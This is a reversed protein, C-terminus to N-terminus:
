DPAVIRRITSFIKDAEIPKVAHDNMGAALYSERDGVMGNATLAVIPIDAVRGPLERIRKVATVGDMDPMQIDMLILDYSAEQVAHVAEAGNGVCTVVHGDSELTMTIVEQNVVNDEAVLISLPRGVGRLRDSSVPGSGAQTKGRATECCITFWFTSGVGETSDVGIQGGMAEVLQRCISLGLGSGGYLRTTSSDAQSFKDFIKDMAADPIGIGTDGVEFRLEIGKSTTKGNRVEVRIAGTETFKIANGILNYLIQQIRGLDGRLDPAVGPDIASELALGKQQARPDMVATVSDILKALNFDLAEFEVRGSEIKSLDLIEDLLHLLAEGSQRIREVQHKQHDSLVSRGLLAAMGLVGNMPTRLEHSMNALFESKAQNAQEAEEKALHLETVDTRIVFTGGDDTRHEHLMIWRGDKEQRYRRLRAVPDNHTELVSRVGEATDDHDGSALENGVVNTMIHEYKAGPVLLHAIDPFDKRTRENCLVFRDAADFLIVGDTMSEIAADLQQERIALTEETRKSETLDFLTTCVVNRGEWNITFSRNNVLVREGAKTLAWFNYDTPATYGQLRAQHYGWIREREEPALVYETSGMALFDDLDDYGLLNLLTRNAYIPQFREHIYIGFKSNEVLAHFREDSSKRRQAEIRYKRHQFLLTATLLVVVLALLSMALWAGHGFGIDGLADNM